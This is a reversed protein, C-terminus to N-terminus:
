IIPIYSSRILQECEKTLSRRDRGLSQILGLQRFEAELTSRCLTKIFHPLFTMDGYWCIDDRNSITVPKNNARQYHFVRPEIPMGSQIAAEFLPSKFAKVMSGDTSTGEPFISVVLGQKLLLAVTDMDKSTNRRNRRDVFICGAASCISGLFGSEEVERSTVFISPEQAALMVPDLYSMHNCVVLRGGQPRPGESVRKTRLGFVRCARRAWQCSRIANLSLGIRQSHRTIRSSLLLSGTIFFVVAYAFMVLRLAIVFM